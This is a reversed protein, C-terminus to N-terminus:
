KEVQNMLKALLLCVLYVQIQHDEYRPNRRLGAICYPFEKKRDNLMAKTFERYWEHLLKIWATRYADDDIEERETVMLYAGRHRRPLAYRVSSGRPTRSSAM